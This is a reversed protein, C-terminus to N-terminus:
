KTGSNTNENNDPNIKKDIQEKCAFIGFTFLDRLIKRSIVEEVDEVTLDRNFHSFDQRIVTMNNFLIKISQHLKYEVPSKDSVLTIKTKEDGERQNIENQLNLCLTELLNKTNNM